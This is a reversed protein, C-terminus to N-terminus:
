VLARVPRCTARVAQSAADESLAARRLQRLAEREIQRLWEPSIGLRRGLEDRSHAVEGIGFLLRLVQEEQRRLKRLDEEVLARRTPEGSGATVAASTAM